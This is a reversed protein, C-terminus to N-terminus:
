IRIIKSKKMNRVHIRSDGHIAIDMIICKKEKKSVVIIDPRRAKVVNDCQSFIDWLLKVAGNM